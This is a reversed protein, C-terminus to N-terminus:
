EDPVDEDVEWAVTVFEFVNEEHETFEVCKGSSVAADVVGVGKLVLFEEEWAM